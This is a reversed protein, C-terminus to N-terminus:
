FFTKVTVVTYKCGAFCRSFHRLSPVERQLNCGGLVQVKMNTTRDLQQRGEVLARRRSFGGSSCVERSVQLERGGAPAEKAPCRRVQTSAVRRGSSTSCGLGGGAPARGAFFVSANVGSVSVPNLSDLSVQRIDLLIM